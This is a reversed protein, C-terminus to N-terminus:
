NHPRDLIDIIIIEGLLYKEITQKRRNNERSPIIQFFAFEKLVEEVDTKVTQEASNNCETDDKSQSEKNIM